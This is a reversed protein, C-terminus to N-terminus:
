FRQQQGLWTQQFHQVPQAHQQLVAGPRAFQLNGDLHFRSAQQPVLLQQQQLPPPAHYATSRHNEAFIRYPQQPQLNMGNPMGYAMAASGGFDSAGSAAAREATETLDMQMALHAWRQRRSPKQETTVAAAAGAHVPLQMQQQQNAFGAAAGSSGFVFGGGGSTSDTTTALLVPATQKAAAAAGVPLLYPRKRAATHSLPMRTLALVGPWVSEPPSERLTTNAEEFHTALSTKRYFDVMLPITEFGDSGGIRYGSRGRIVRIHEVQEACKVSVVFEGPRTISERVLFCGEARDTLVEQAIDRHINGFYWPSFGWDHVHSPPKVAPYAVVEGDGRKQFSLEAFGDLVGSLQAAVMQDNNQCKFVTRSCTRCERSPVTRGRSPIPDLNEWQMPCHDIRACDEIMVVSPASGTAAAIAANTAAAGFGPVTLPAGSEGGGGFGSTLALAAAAAAYNLARVLERRHRHVYLKRWRTQVGPAALPRSSVTPWRSLALREWVAPDFSVAAWRRCVQSAAVVGQLSGIHVLVKTLIEDTLMSWDSSAHVGATGDVDDDAVGPLLVTDNCAKCMHEAPQQQQDHQQQQARHQFSTVAAAPAASASGIRLRSALQQRRNLAASGGETVRANATGAPPTYHHHHHHHHVQQYPQQKQQLHSALPVAAAMGATGGVAAARGRFAAHTPMATSAMGGEAHHYHQQHLSAAHASSGTQMHAVAGGGTANPTAPHMPGSNTNEESRRFRKTAVWSDTLASDVTHDTTSVQLSSTDSTLGVRTYDAREAAHRATAPWVAHGRGHGLVAADMAAAM